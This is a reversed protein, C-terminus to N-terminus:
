DFDSFGDPDQDNPDQDSPDQRDADDSGPNEESNPHTQDEPHLTRWPNEEVLVDRLEVLEKSAEQKGSESYGHILNNL